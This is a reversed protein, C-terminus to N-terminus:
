NFPMQFQLHTTHPKSRIEQYTYLSISLYLVHNVNVCTPNQSMFPLVCKLEKEKYQYLVKRSVECWVWKYKDQLCQCKLHISCCTHPMTLIMGCDDCIKWKGRFIYMWKYMKQNVNIIMCEELKQLKFNTSHDSAIFTIPYLL